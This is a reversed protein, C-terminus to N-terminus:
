RDASVLCTVYPHHLTLPAAQFGTYACGVTTATVWCHWCYNGYYDDPQTAKFVLASLFINGVLGFIFSFALSHLYFRWAPGPDATPDNSAGADKAMCGLAKMCYVFARM